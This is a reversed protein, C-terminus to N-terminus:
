LKGLLIAYLFKVNNEWNPFHLTEGQEFPAATGASEGM